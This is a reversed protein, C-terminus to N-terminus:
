IDKKFNGKIFSLTESDSVEFEKNQSIQEKAFRRETIITNLSM